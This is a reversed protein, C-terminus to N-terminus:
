PAMGIVTPVVFAKISQVQLPQYARDMSQFLKKSSSGGRDRISVWAPKSPLQYDNSGEGMAMQHLILASRYFLFWPVRNDVTLPCNPIVSDRADQGSIKLYYADPVLPSLILYVMM